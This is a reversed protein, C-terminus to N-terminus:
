IIKALVIIIILKILIIIDKTFVYMYYKLNIIFGKKLEVHQKLPHGEYIYKM